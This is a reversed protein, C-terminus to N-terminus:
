AVKNDGVHQNAQRQAPEPWEAAPAM